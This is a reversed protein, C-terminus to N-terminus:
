EESEEDQLQRGETYYAQALTGSRDIIAWGSTGDLKVRGVLCQICTIDFVLPTGYAKFYHIDLICHKFLIKCPQVKALIITEPRKLNLDQLAEVTFSFIRLLQGYFTAMNLRVLQRRNRAHLDM